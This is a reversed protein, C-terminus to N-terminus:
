VLPALCPLRCTGFAAPVRPPETPNAMPSASPLASDPVIGRGGSSFVGPHPHPHPRRARADPSPTPTVPAERDGGGWAEGPPPRGLYGDWGEDCGGSAFVGSTVFPHWSPPGAPTDWHGALAAVVRSRAWTRGRRLAWSCRCSRGAPVPNSVLSRGRPVQVQAGTASDAGPVGAPVASSEPLAERPGDGGPGPAEGGHGLACAPSPHADSLVSGQGVRPPSAPGARPSPGRQAATDGQADHARLVWSSRAAASHDLSGIHSGWLRCAPPAQCPCFAWTPPRGPSPPDSPALSLLLLARHGPPGEGSM